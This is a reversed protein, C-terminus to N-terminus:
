RSAVFQRYEKLLDAPAALGELRAWPLGPAMRVLTLPQHNMKDGRYADFARQVAISAEVTGTYHQWQPGAHFKRAYAALRAPIDQEPDLSVSVLHVRTSDGGLASQFQEFLASSMPCITTCTTFVFNLFVPRGDDLEDRLRVKRGDDRVLVVDPIPYNALSRRVSGAAHELHHLAHADPDAAARAPAGMASAAILCGTCIGIAIHPQRINM